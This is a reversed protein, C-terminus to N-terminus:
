FVHITANGTKAFLFVFCGSSNLNWIFLLYNATYINGKSIGFEMFIVRFYGLVYLSKLIHTLYTQNDHLFVDKDQFSGFMKPFFLVWGCIESICLCMRVQSVIVVQNGVPFKWHSFIFYFLLILDGLKNYKLHHKMKLWM